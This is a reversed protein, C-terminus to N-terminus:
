IDIFVFNYVCTIDNRNMPLKILIEMHVSFLFLWYKNRRSLEMM